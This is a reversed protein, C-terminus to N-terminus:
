WGRWTHVLFEQLLRGCMKQVYFWTDLHHIVHRKVRVWLTNGCPTLNGYGREVHCRMWEVDGYQVFSWDLTSHVRLISSFVELDPDCRHGFSSWYCVSRYIIFCWGFVWRARSMCFTTLELNLFEEMCVHSYFERSELWSLRWSM